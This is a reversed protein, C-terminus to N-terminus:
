AICVHNSIWYYGKTGKHMNENKEIGAQLSSSQFPTRLSCFVNVVYLFNITNEIQM